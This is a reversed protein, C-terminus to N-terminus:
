DSPSSEWIARARTQTWCRSSDTRNMPTLMCLGDASWPSVYENTPSETRWRLRTSCSPARPLTASLLPTCKGTLSTTLVLRRSSLSGRSPSVSTQVRVRDTRSMLEVLPDMAEDMRAYDLSCVELCFDEFADTSMSAAQAAAATPYRLLVWKKTLYLTTLSESALRSAELIAAPIDALESANDGAMIFVSADIDGLRQMQWGVRLDMQERDAGLLWARRLRPEGYDVYPLAGRQYAAEVLAIMLEVSGAEGEILVKEGAQLRLSHDLLNQALVDLRPDRMRGEKRSRAVREACWLELGYSVRAVHEPM